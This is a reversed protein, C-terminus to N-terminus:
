GCDIHEVGGPGACFVEDAGRRCFLGCTLVGPVQEARAEFAAADTLDLEAVDLIGFGNDTVFGERPEPLGGVGAFWRAVLSRAMPVVEVPLPFAGLRGVLKREDVICLFRESAEAVIKERTLAGGGGKILFGERTTEDAGDVYLPLPGVANLDLVPIGHGRLREETARSSAVAGDFAHRLKALGDIFHDATSGTGVGLVTNSDLLPRIRELAAEAAARKRDDSM